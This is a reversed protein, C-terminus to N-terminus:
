TKKMGLLRLIEDTTEEITCNGDVLILKVQSAYYAKLPETLEHYAALRHQTTVPDDDKRVVLPQACVDCMGEKAPPQSVLHYTMPCNSCLRRDVVRNLIIEDPVELSLAFDIEVGQEDLAEAQALTRPVGDLIFGNKCDDRALRESVIRIIIEDPVLDGNEILAKAKLGTPTGEKVATRLMDGTSIQPIKLRDILMEAQTGKGAGPPGLLILKM